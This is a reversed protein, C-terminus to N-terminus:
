PEILAEVYGGSENNWRLARFQGFFAVLQTTFLALQIPDGTLVLYDTDPNFERAANRINTRFGHPVSGDEKIMDSFVYGLNGTYRVRGWQSLASLDHKTPHVLWLTSPVLVM